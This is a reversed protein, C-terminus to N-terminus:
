MQKYFPDWYQRMDMLKKYYHQNIIWILVGLCLGSWAWIEITNNIMADYYKNVLLLVVFLIFHSGGLGKISQINLKNGVNIGFILGAVAVFNNILYNRNIEGYTMHLLLWGEYFLFSGIWLMGPVFFKTYTDNLKIKILCALTLIITSIVVVIFSKPKDPFVDLILDQLMFFLILIAITSCIKSKFHIGYLCYIIFNVFELNMISYWKIREFTLLTGISALIASFIGTMAFNPLFYYILASVFYMSFEAMLLQKDISIYDFVYIKLLWSLSVFIISGYLLKIIEVSKFKKTNLKNEKEDSPGMAGSSESGMAGFSQQDKVEVM